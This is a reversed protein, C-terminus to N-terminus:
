SCRRAEECDIIRLIENTIVKQEKLSGQSLGLLEALLLGEMALAMVARFPAPLASDDISSFLRKRFERAPAMLLPDHAAAALLASTIKRTRPDHIPSSLIVAKLGRSPTDPLRAMQKKIRIDLVVLLRSIMAQLLASKNSFHYLLGGKSIGAQSSVADLTLHAAGKEIVVAEAADLIAERTNKHKMFLDRNQKQKGPLTYRWVSTGSEDV